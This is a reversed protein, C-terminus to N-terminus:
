IMVEFIQRVFEYMVAFQLVICGGVLLGEVFKRKVEAKREDREAMEAWYSEIHYERIKKM